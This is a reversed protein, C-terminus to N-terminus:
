YDVKERKANENQITADGAVRCAPVRLQCQAAAHWGQKRQLCCFRNKHRCDVRRKILGTGSCNKDTGREEICFSQM